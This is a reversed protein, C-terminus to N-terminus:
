ELKFSGIIEQECREAELRFHAGHSSCVLEIYADDSEVMYTVVLSDEVPVQQLSHEAETMLKSENRWTLTAGMTLEEFSGKWEEGVGDKSHVFIEFLSGHPHEDPQDSDFLYMQVPRADDSAVHWGAPALVEFGHEKGTITRVAEDRESRLLIGIIGIGVVIATIICILFINKM